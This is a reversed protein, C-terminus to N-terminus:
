KGGAPVETRKQGFRRHLPTYRYYVEFTLIHLATSTVRGGAQGIWNPDPNWSGKRHGREHQMPLLTRRIFINWAGWPEGGVHFLALTAYYWYYSSQFTRDWDLRGEPNPPERVLIRATNQIERSRPSWGLYLKCLMGVSAISVGGRNKEIGRDAYSSWGSRHVARWM